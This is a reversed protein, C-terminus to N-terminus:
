NAFVDLIEFTPFGKKEGYKLAYENQEHILEFIDEILEGYQTFTEFKIEVGPALSSLMGNVIAYHFPMTLVQNMFLMSREFEGSVIKFWITVMPDGKKSAKLEMKEVAVEYEGHPVEKYGGVDANQIDSALAATDISRDFQEWLNM